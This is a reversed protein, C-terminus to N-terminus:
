RMWRSLTLEVFIREFDWFAGSRRIAGAAIVFVAAKDQLRQGARTAQILNLKM